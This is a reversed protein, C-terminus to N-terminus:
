SFAHDSLPAPPPPPLLCALPVLSGPSTAAAGLSSAPRSCVRRFQVGLFEAGMAVQM